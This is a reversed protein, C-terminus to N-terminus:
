IVRTRIDAPFLSRWLLTERERERDRERERERQSNIVCIDAYMCVCMCAYMCVYVCVYMCVYMCVYVCVCVCMCVYVCVYMFCVCMCVYMCVYMCVCYSKEMLFERQCMHTNSQKIYTHINIVTPGIFFSHHRLVWTRQSDFGFRWGPPICM